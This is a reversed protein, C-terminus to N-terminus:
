IYVIVCMLFTRPHTEEMTITPTTRLEEQESDRWNISYTRVHRDNVVWDVVQDSTEVTFSPTIVSIVHSYSKSRTCVAFEVTFNSLLPLLDISFM